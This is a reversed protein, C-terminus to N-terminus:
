EETKEEAAKAAAEAEARAKEAAAEADAKAKAAAADAKAKEQAAKAAAAAEAKAAEAAKIVADREAETFPVGQKRAIARARARRQQKEDYQKCAIGHKKFIEACTDSAVAGQGIWFEIREKNIVIQKDADKELPDFHGLKELIRGDRPTRGDVANIRFFPRHRRGMRTMRIKVSMTNGKTLTYLFKQM